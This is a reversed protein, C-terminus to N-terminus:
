VVNCGLVDAQSEIEFLLKRYRSNTAKDCTVVDVPRQLNCVAPFPAVFLVSFDM